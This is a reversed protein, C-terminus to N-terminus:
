ANEVFEHIELTLNEYQFVGVNQTQYRKNKNLNYRYLTEATMIIKNFEKLDSLKKIIQLNDGSQVSISYDLPANSHIIKFMVDLVDDIKELNDFQYLFGNNFVSHKIGTQNFIFDNMLNNQEGMSDNEKKFYSKKWQTNILIM